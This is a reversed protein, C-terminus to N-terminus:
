GVGKEFLLASGIIDKYQGNFVFNGVQIVPSDSNVGQWSFICEDCHVVTKCVTYM